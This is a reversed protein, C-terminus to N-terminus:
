NILRNRRTIEHILRSTREVRLLMPLRLSHIRPVLRNIMQIPRLFTPAELRPLHFHIQQMPMIQLRSSPDWAVVMIRQLVVLVRDQHYLLLLLLPLFLTPNYLVLEDQRIRPVHSSFVQHHLVKQHRKTVQQHPFLSTLTLICIIRIM